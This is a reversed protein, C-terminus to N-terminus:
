GWCPRGRPEAEGSRQPERPSGQPEAERQPERPNGQPEAGESPDRAPELTKSKAKMLNQFKTEEIQSKGKRNILWIPAAGLLRVKSRTGRQPGGRLRRQTPLRGKVRGQARGRHGRRRGTGPQRGGQAPDKTESRTEGRTGEHSFSATNCHGQVLM